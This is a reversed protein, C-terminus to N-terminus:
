SLEKTLYNSTYFLGNRLRYSPPRTDHVQIDVVPYTKGYHCSDAKTIRVFDGIKISTYKKEFRRVIEPTLDEFTEFDLCLKLAKLITEADSHKM